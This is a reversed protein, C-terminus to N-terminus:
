RSRCRNHTKPGSRLRSSSPKWGWRRKRRAMARVNKPQVMLVGSSNTVAKLDSGSLLASLAADSTYRGHLGPTARGKVVEESFIIQQSSAASFDTLALSLSEAPIDFQYEPAAARATSVGLVLAMLASSSLFLKRM